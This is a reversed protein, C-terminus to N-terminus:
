SKRTAKGRRIFPALGFVKIKGDLTPRSIGLVRATAAKKWGAEELARLIIEREKQQATERVITKWNTPDSDETPLVSRGQTIERSFDAATLQTGGM